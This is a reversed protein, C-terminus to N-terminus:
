PSRGTSWCRPARAREKVGGAIFIALMVGEVIGMGGPTVGVSGAVKGGAFAHLVAGVPIPARAAAFSLGLCLADLLWNLASLAWAVAWSWAPPRVHTLSRAAQRFGGTIRVLARGAPGAHAETWDLGAALLIPHRLLIMAGASGACVVALPPLLVPGAGSGAIVAGALALAALACFAIAGAALESWVAPRAGFRRYRAFSYGESLALGAPVSASIANSAVTVLSMRWRVARVGGAALIVLQEEALAPM